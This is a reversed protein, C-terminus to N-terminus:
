PTQIKAPFGCAVRFDAMPFAPGPDNKRGPAIDDHGILDDLNYRKVIAQCVAIGSEIQEPTFQEWEVEKGGNKHKAKILPLKSWRRALAASDGANAFEIGISCSNLGGFTRGTNPCRWSSAGAHDCRQNFARTQYVNGNRDIIVHAEAGKAAATRWFNISSLASAGSTFHMVAFRRIGMVPGPPYAVKVVDGDLWHDTVKFTKM